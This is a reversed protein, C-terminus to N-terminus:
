PAYPMMVEAFAVVFFGFRSNLLQQLGGPALNRDTTLGASELRVTWLHACVPGVQPRGFCIEAVMSTLIEGGRATNRYVRTAQIGNRRAQAEILPRKGTFPRHVRFSRRQISGASPDRAPEMRAVEVEDHSWGPASPRNGKSHQDITLRYAGTM